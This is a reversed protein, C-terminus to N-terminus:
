ENVENDNAEGEKKGIKKFEGEMEKFNKGEEESFYVSGKSTLVFVKKKYYVPQDLLLNEGNKEIPNTNNENKEIKRFTNIVSDEPETETGCWQMDM